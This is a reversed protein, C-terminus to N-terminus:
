TDRKPNNYHHNTFHNKWIGIHFHWIIEVDLNTRWVLWGKLIKLYPWALHIYFPLIEYGDSIVILDVLEYKHGIWNSHIHHLEWSTEFFTKTPKNVSFYNYLALPCTSPSHILPTFCFTNFYPWTHLIFCM